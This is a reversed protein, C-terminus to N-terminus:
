RLLLAERIRKANLLPKPKRHSHVHSNRSPVNVRSLSTSSRQFFHGSDPRTKPKLASTNAHRLSQTALSRTVKGVRGSETEAPQAQEAEVFFRPFAQLTADPKDETTGRREINAGWTTATPPKSTNLRGTEVTALSAAQPPVSMTKLMGRAEDRATNLQTEYTEYLLNPVGAHEFISNSHPTAKRLKEQSTSRSAVSESVCDGAVSALTDFDNETLDDEPVVAAFYNSQTHAKDLGSVNDDNEQQRTSSLERKGDSKTDFPTFTKTPTRHHMSALSVHTREDKTPIADPPFNQQEIEEHVSAPVDTGNM